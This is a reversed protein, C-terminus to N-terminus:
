PAQDPDSSIFYMDPTPHLPLLIDTSTDIPDRPVVLDLTFIPVATTEDCIMAKTPPSLSLNFMTDIPPMDLSLVDSDSNVM